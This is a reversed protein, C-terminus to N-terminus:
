STMRSGRRISFSSGPAMSACLWWFIAAALLRYGIRSPADAPKEPAFWLDVSGDSNTAVNNYGNISPMLQPAEVMTGETINYATVAWFLKAPPNPPLHLKYSNSGNLFQGKM